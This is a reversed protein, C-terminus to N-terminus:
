IGNFCLNLHCCKDKWFRGFATLDGKLLSWIEGFTQMVGTKERIV